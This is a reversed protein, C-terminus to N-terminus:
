QVLLMKRSAVFQRVQLRSFYIGSSALQGNADCGDWEVSYRGASQQGTVLVRVERGLVDYLALRVDGAQALDYCIRTGPNFPNPYNQHLACTSTELGEMHGDVHTM